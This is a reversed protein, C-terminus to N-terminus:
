FARFRFSYIAAGLMIALINRIKIQKLMFGGLSKESLQLPANM